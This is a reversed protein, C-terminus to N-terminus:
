MDGVAIHYANDELNRLAQLAEAVVDGLRGLHEPDAKRVQEMLTAFADAAATELAKATEQQPTM